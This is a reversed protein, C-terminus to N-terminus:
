KADERKQAAASLAGFPVGIAYELDILGNLYNFHQQVVGIRAQRLAEEANQVSNFDQLGARYAEETSRYSREALEVTRNRAEISSQTKELSLVTNYIELETGQIMQTLGINAGRIQNDLDKLAQGEKTFPFLGNLSQWGLTISFTGRDTWNDKDGWSDKFPDGGFSPSLSWSFNLYPTRSQLSQASRASQLYLINAKLELIDPKNRSAGSILEKTDLPVFGTDGEAPVLEFQTDYPLGLSVAFNAMAMKYQNEMEEIDPRLNDRNVQAQLLTLQPSLGSNYNAQAAAVQREAATLSDQRVRISEELLLMQNYSKRVDREMQIKAKDYSLLGTQYDRRIAQIGSGLAASLTLSASFGANMSWQPSAPLTVPGMVTGKPEENQRALTGRASLDPLFQNWVLDSKRKKTDLSLADSQLRLNNKLAASVAEDVTLRKKGAEGAAGEPPLAAARAEQGANQGADQGGNQQAGLLGPACLALAAACLLAPPFIGGGRPKGNKVAKRRKRDKSSM